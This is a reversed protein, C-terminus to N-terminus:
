LSFTLEAQVLAQLGGEKPRPFDGGGMPVCYIRPSYTSSPLFSPIAKSFHKRVLNADMNNRPYLLDLHLNLM